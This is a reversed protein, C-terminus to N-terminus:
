PKGPMFHPPLTALIRRVGLRPGPPVACESSRAQQCVRLARSSGLGARGDWVTEPGLVLVGGTRPLFPQPRPRLDDEWELRLRPVPCCGDHSRGDRGRLADQARGEHGGFGRRSQNYIRGRDAGCATLPVPTVHDAVSSGGREPLNVVMGPLSLRGPKRYARRSCPHHNGCGLQRDAACAQRVTREGHQGDSDAGCSVACCAAHPLSM